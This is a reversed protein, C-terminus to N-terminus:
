ILRGRFDKEDVTLESGAQGAIAFGNKKNFDSFSYNEKLFMKNLKQSAPIEKEYEIVVEGRSTSAEVSKVGELELLKKEILIECSACHM